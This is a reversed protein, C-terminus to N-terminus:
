KPILGRTKPYNKLSHKLASQAKKSEVVSLRSEVATRVSSRARIQGTRNNLPTQEPQVNSNTIRDLRAKM